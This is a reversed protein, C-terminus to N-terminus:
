GTAQSGWDLYGAPADAIQSRLAGTASLAVNARTAEPFVRRTHVGQNGQPCGRGQM